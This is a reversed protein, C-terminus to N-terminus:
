ILKFRKKEITYTGIYVLALSSLFGLCYVVCGILFFWISDDTKIPNRSFIYVILITLTIFSALLGFALYFLRKNLLLPLSLAILIIFDRILYNFNINHFLTDILNLLGLLVFYSAAFYKLINPNSFNLIKM